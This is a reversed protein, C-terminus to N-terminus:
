IQAKVQKAARTHQVHKRIGTHRPLFSKVLYRIARRLEYRQTLLVALSVLIRFVEGFPIICLLANNHYFWTSCKRMLPPDPYHLRCALRCYSLTM